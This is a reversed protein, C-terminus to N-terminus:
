RRRKNLVDNYLDTFSKYRSTFTPEEKNDMHSMIVACAENFCYATYQDSISLIEAPTKRYRQAM